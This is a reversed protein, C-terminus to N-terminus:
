WEAISFICTHAYIFISDATYRNRRTFYIYTNHYIHTYLKKWGYGSLVNVVGLFRCWFGLSRFVEEPIYGQTQFGPFCVSDLGLGESSPTLQAPQMGVPPHQTM